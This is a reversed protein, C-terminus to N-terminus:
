DEYVRGCVDGSVVHGTSAQFSCTRRSGRLKQGDDHVVEVRIGLAVGVIGVVSSEMRNEVVNQFIGSRETQCSLALAM